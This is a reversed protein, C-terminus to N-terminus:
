SGDIKFFFIVFIFCLFASCYHQTTCCFLLSINVFFIPPYFIAAWCFLPMYLVFYSFIYILLLFYFCGKFENSYNGSHKQWPRSLIWMWILFYLPSLLIIIVPRGSCYAPFFLSHLSIKSLSTYRKVYNPICVDL